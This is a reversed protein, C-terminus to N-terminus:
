QRQQREWTWTLGVLMDLDPADGCLKAGAAADLVLTPHVQWRIGGLWQLSNDSWRDEPIVCVFETVWEVKPSMRWCLALGTNFLDDEAAGAPDGTWTYGLNVHCNWRDSLTRSGIYILDLDTEGTGFGKDRSATPLKVSSAFAHAAFSDVEAIPNWKLGAAFDGLGHISSTGAAETREQIRGGFGAGIELTPLLGTIIGLPFEYDRVSGDRHITAGVEFEFVGPPVTGADDTTLPRGAHVTLAAWCGVM